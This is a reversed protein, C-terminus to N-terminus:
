DPLRELLSYHWRETGDRGDFRINLQNPNKPALSVVTAALGRYNLAIAGVVKQHEAVRVRVRDGAQFDHEKVWHQGSEPQTSTAASM